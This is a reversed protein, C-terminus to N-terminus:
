APASALRVTVFSYAAHGSGEHNDGSKGCAGKAVRQFSRYTAESCGEWSPRVYLRLPWSPDEREGYVM